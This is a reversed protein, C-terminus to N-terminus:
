VQRPKRAIHADAETASAEPRNSRPLNPFIAAFLLSNASVVPPRPASRVAPSRGRDCSRAPLALATIHRMRGPEATRDSTAAVPVTRLAAHNRPPLPILVAQGFDEGYRVVVDHEGQRGREGFQRRISHCHWLRTVTKGVVVALASTM